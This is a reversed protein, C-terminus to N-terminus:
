GLHRGHMARGAYQATAPSPTSGFPAAHEVTGAHGLQRQAAATGRDQEDSSPREGDVLAPGTSRSKSSRPSPACAHATSSRSAAGAAARRDLHDEAGDAIVMRVATRATASTRACPWRRAANKVPRRSPRSRAARGGHMLSSTPRSRGGHCIVRAVQEGRVRKGDPWAEEIAANAPMTITSTAISTRRPWGAAAPRVDSATSTTTAPRGPGPAAEAPVVRAVHDAAHQEARAEHQEPM